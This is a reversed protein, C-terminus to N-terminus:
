KTFPIGIKELLAHSEARNKTSTVITINLGLSQDVQEYDIEPFILQDTIGMNYNGDRDFKKPSLGQFDRIRPLALNIFRDLFSYMKENRLTVTLGLPMGERVKFGAISKKATTLIPHQGTIIRIEDTAKQLYTRNQANLGLGCSVHIKAIKPIQHVNSYNFEKNLKPIVNNNYETKLNSM